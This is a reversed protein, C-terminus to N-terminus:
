EGASYLRKSIGDSIDINRYKKWNDIVTQANSCPVAGLYVNFRFKTADGDWRYTKGAEYLTDCVLKFNESGIKSSIGEDRCYDILVEINDKLEPPIRYAYEIEEVIEKLEENPLFYFEYPSPGEGNYNCNMEKFEEWTVEPYARKYCEKYCDIVANALVDDRSIM